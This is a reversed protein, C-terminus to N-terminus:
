LFQEFKGDPMEYVSVVVTKKAFKVQFGRYTMGGREGVTTPTVSQVPGLPALSAAYDHLAQADFYANANATFRTRDIRGQRLGDFVKRILANRQQDRPSDHQLLASVVRRGIQAGASAADQNTLVAVAIRDDPLVINESTFGSVEGSHEIERHGNVMAVHVGLGYHTGVGNKLRVETEMERYSAPKLVTQDIMSIDWKALDGATMALEGAAFMWGSGAIPAPRAPGLAHRYYGIPDNASQPLAHEDSNRVSTMGLPGFVHQQLFPWLPMGAAKAVILGAIVFNTNSYQWRTGPEFDLSRRAWRDLIGDPTIPKLMIPPVFDQPWFDQYGSTHSLIERITVEHGRTLGPVYKGVPDDLSLKGDQQLLLIAAATFQKSISGVSYAMAPTAAVRPDLRADGYAQVYVVTGDRVVALSASPVGTANLVDHAARDIQVQLAPPLAPATQARALTALAFCCFGLTLLLRLRARLRRPM